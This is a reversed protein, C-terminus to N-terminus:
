NSNTEAEDEDEKAEEEKQDVEDFKPRMHNEDIWGQVDQLRYYVNRGLRCYSPGDGKKRWSDITHHSVDLMLALEKPTVIELKQRLTLGIEDEPIMIDGM